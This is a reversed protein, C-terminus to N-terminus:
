CTAVCTKVHRLGRASHGSFFINCLQCLKFSCPNLIIWLPGLFVLCRLPHLPRTHSFSENGLDLIVSSCADKMLLRWDEHELKMNLSEEYCNKLINLDTKKLKRRWSHGVWWRALSVLELEGSHSCVPLFELFWPVPHSVDDHKDHKCLHERLAFMSISHFRIFDFSISFNFPWMFTLCVKLSFKTCTWIEISRM